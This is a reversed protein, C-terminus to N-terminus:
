ANSLRCKILFTYDECYVCKLWHSHPIVFCCSSSEYIFNFHKASFHSSTPCPSQFISKKTAKRKVIKDYLWVCITNIALFFLFFLLSRNMCVNLIDDYQRKIHNEKRGTLRYFSLFLIPYFLFFLLKIKTLFNKYMSRM